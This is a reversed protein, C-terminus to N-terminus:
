VTAFSILVRYLAIITSLAFFGLLFGMLLPRLLCLLVTSSEDFFHRNGFVLMLFVPYGIGDRPIFLFPPSATHCARFLLRYSPSSLSRHPKGFPAFLPLIAYLVFSPLFLVLFSFMFSFFAFCCLRVKM